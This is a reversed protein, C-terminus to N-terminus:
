QKSYYEDCLLREICIQQIFSRIFSHFPVIISVKCLVSHLVKDLFDPVRLARRGRLPHFGM